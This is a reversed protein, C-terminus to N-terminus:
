LILNQNLFYIISLRFKYRYIGPLLAINCQYEGVAVEVMRIPHDWDPFDGVLEVCQGSPAQCSMSVTHREPATSM